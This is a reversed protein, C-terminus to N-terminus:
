QKLNTPQEYAEDGFDGSYLDPGSSKAKSSSYSATTSSQKGYSKSGYSPKTGGRPLGGYNPKPAKSVRPKSKIQYKNDENMSDRFKERSNSIRSSRLGSDRKTPQYHSSNEDMDGVPQGFSPKFHNNVPPRSMPKSKPHYTNRGADDQGYAQSKNRNSQSSGGFNPKFVKRYNSNSGSNYQQDNTRPHVDVKSMTRKTDKNKMKSKLLMLSQRAESLEENSSPRYNSISAGYAPISKNSFRQYSGSAPSNSSMDPIGSEQGGYMNSNNQFGGYKPPLSPAGSDIMSNEANALMKAKREERIQKAREMQLRKKEAWDQAARSNKNAHSM